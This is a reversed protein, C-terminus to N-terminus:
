YAGCTSVILGLKLNEITVKHIDNITSFTQKKFSKIGKLIKSANQIFDKILEM